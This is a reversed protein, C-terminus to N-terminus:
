KLVAVAITVDKNKQKSLILTPKSTKFNTEASVSGAMKKASLLASAECVSKVGLHKEVMKSPTLIETVSNLEDKTYFDLCCGMHESLALLGSEDIKVDTTGLRAISNTSFAARKFTEELFAKIIEFGTDRNCGIGVSFVPPRVIFTERSVPEIKGDCFIHEVDKTENKDAIYSEPLYPIIFGWPDHVAIKKQMLFAMNIRKINEPTEMFLGRKQTIMDIAPLLNTDTATTIVPRAGVILSIKEALANAGGLHGSLLSIAHIANDDLVVVAPDEFKSKLLPATLRVAIGTSFIFVHNSYQNFQRPLEETLSQFVTTRKEDGPAHITKSLFVVANDLSDKMKLGWHRGKPTIAWIAIANNQQPKLPEIDMHFLRTM